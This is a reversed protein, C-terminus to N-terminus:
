VIINNIIVPNNETTIDNNIAQHSETHPSYTEFEMNCIPCKKNNEFWKTVCEDCFYHTCLLQKMTDDKKFDERCVFCETDEELIINTTIKNLNKIGINVDGIEEGILILDEYTSQSQYYTDNNLELVPFDDDEEEDEDEEDDNSINNNYINANGPTNNSIINNFINNNRISYRNTYRDINILPNNLLQQYSIPPPPPPPPPPIEDLIESNSQYSLSNNLTNVSSRINRIRQYIRNISERNIQLNNLYEEGLPESLPESLHESIHEQETNESIFRDISNRQYDRIETNTSPQEYIPNIIISDPIPDNPIDIPDNPIPDNPIDSPEDIVNSVNRIINNIRTNLRRIELLNISVNQRYLNCSQTHIEYDNFEIFEDCLDCPILNIDSM